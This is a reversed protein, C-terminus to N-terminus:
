SNQRSPGPAVGLEKSVWVRLPGTAQFGANILLHATESREHGMLPLAFAALHQICDQIASENGWFNTVGICNTSRNHAIGGDGASLFGVNVRQWLDRHFIDNSESAADIWRNFAEDSDVNTLSVKNARGAERFYWQAEFLVKLGFGRLDHLAM